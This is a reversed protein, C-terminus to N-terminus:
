DNLDLRQYAFEGGFILARQRAPAGAIQHLVDLLTAQECEALPLV